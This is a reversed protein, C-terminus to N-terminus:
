RAHRRPRRCQLSLVEVLLVEVLAGGTEEGVGGTSLLLTPCPADGHFTHCSKKPPPSVGSFPCLSCPYVTCCHLHSHLQLHLLLHLLILVSAAAALLFIFLLPVRLLNLLIRFPPPAVLPPAVVPALTWLM